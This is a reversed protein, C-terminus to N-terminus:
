RAPMVWQSGGADTIWVFEFGTSTDYWRDGDNHPGAPYPPQIYYLGSGAPGTPGQPGIGGSGIDLPNGYGDYYYGGVTQVLKGFTSSVTAGFLSNSM